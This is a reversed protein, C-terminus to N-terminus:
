REDFKKMSESQEKKSISIYPKMAEFKSHGTWSMVTTVPIGMMLANSIFTRRGCHSTILMFKKNTIEYKKNGVYYCVTVPTDIGANACIIRLADNFHEKYCKRFVTNGPNNVGQRRLIEKAYKNLQIFVTKGTKKQVIRIEEDQIDTWKLNMADSIRLSTFCMFCFADRVNRQFDNEIELEYVSMLEEWTLFIIEKNKVTKVRYDVKTSKEEKLYGKRYSWRLFTVLIKINANASTTKLNSNIIIGVISDTGNKDIEDLRFDGMRRLIFNKLSRYSVLTSYAVSKMIEIDSLFSDFCESFLVGESTAPVNRYLIKGNMTNFVDRYEDKEPVSGDVEFKKFVDDALIEM